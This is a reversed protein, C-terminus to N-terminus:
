ILVSAAGKDLFFTVNNHEQLFTAPVKKTMEGEVAKKIIDGKGEGWAMLIVRKAEMIKEIGLTIATRPTNILGSFDGSAAVRTMHDLSVLRTKSNQLSGSENFGIHGNGGIGLVQLDIGGLREIKEEYLKCYNEIDKEKLTGDPINCNEVLIDVHNFLQEKMFRVYSNVSDPEMPYYEDLNFAIVNKFSLGTEKHLRVLEAYLGKPTSGTAFGLVCPLYQKQKRQILTAIEKAIECSAVASNEFVFTNINGFRKEFSTVKGANSKIM